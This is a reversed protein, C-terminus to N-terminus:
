LSLSCVACEPTQIRAFALSEIRWFTRVLEPAWRAEYEDLASTLFSCDLSRSGRCAKMSQVPFLQGKVEGMCAVNGVSLM